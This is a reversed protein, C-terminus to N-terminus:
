VEKFNLIIYDNGYDSQIGQLGLIMSDILLATDHDAKQDLEFDILGSEEEMDLRFRASTFAEISNITNFVLASIGACIIDTGAEAYGSHGICRFGTVQDHNQFITITTM